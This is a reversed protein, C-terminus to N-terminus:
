NSLLKLFKELSRTHQVCLPKTPALFLVKGGEKIIHAAVLIAVITKGLATPAVVLSNGKEIIRAALVEQYLKSEVTEPRIFAHSIFAMFRLPTFVTKLHNILENGTCFANVPRFQRILCM